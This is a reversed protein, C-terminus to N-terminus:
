SIPNPHIRYRYILAGAAVTAIACVSILPKLRMGQITMWSGVILFVAPILPFAFSVVRLKQWDPRPRFILLSVVALVAFFNLLFGIYTVLVPFPTFTMVGACVGQWLIANVPTRWRENVKGSAAFFAKNKAMAYYVRPGITLMANVTSILSLAMLGSFVGAIRNGFLHSAALAGVAVNGRMAQQKILEIPAAYM